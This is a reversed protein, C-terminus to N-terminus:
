EKPLTKDVKPPPFPEKIAGIWPKVAMFEDGEGPAIKDFLEEVEADMKQCKEEGYIKSKGSLQFKV